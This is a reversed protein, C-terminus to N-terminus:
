KDDRERILLDNLDCDFYNMFKELLGKDYLDVQNRAWRSITGPSVGMADALQQQTLGREKMLEALRTRVKYM